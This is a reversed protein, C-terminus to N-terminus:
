EEMIKNIKNNLRRILEQKLNEKNYRKCQEKLVCEYHDITICEFCPNSVQEEPM